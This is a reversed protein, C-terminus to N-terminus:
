WLEAIHFEALTCHLATSVRQQVESNQFVTFPNVRAEYQTAYRAEPGGALGGAEEDRCVARPHVQCCLMACVARM